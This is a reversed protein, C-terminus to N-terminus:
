KNLDTIPLKGIKLDQPFEQNMLEKKFVKSFANFSETNWGETCRGFHNRLATRANQAINETFWVKVWRRM